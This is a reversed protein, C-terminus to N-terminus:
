ISKCIDVFGRSELSAGGILGGDVDKGAFIEKANEPKVSGGYLIPINEAVENGYKAALHERLQEHMEQAQDVSLGLPKECLVDLGREIAQLTLPHHSDNASAILVADMPTAFFRDPETHAGGIEWRDAFAQARGADRGLAAVVDVTELARLAPLYMADAWWSTGVVGVRTM